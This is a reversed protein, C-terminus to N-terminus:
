VKRQYHDFSCNGIEDPIIIWIVVDLSIIITVKEIIKKQSTKVKLNRMIKQDLLQAVLSRYASNIHGEPEDMSILITPQPDDREWTDM